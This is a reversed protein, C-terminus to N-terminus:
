VEVTPGSMFSSSSSLQQLFRPLQIHPVGTLQSFKEGTDVTGISVLLLMCDLLDLEPIVDRVLQRAM